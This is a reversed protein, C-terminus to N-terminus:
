QVTLQYSLSHQLTYSNTGTATGTVSLTYTVQSQGFFGTDVGCGTISGLAGLGLLMMVGLLLPRLKKARRRLRRGFPLLLLALVIGTDRGFGPGQRLEGHLPTQITVTFPTVASGPTVVQPSITATAGTPLGGVSLTIPFTFPVLVPTITFDFTASQGPIVTQNISGGPNSPQPVLALSFDEVTQNVTTSTSGAFSPSGGYVATIPDTGVALTSTTATITDPPVSGVYFPVGGVEFTVTGAPSGLGIPVVVATFTVPQGNLSPDINSGLTVTTPAQTGVGVLLVSQPVVLTGGFAVSGSDPGVTVPLSEIFQTCSAGATLTIPLASCTGGAVATFGTAINITSVTISATGTNSLIISQTATPVGVYTSPFTLTPLLGARVRENQKDAISINGSADPAVSKPMNLIAGTALGNDGGYGQVGTGTITAIAGNGVQRIRENDTDAVYVNGASDVSVGAPRALTASAAAAGDGSFGGSFGGGSGALTSIVGSSATVVRIRQNLRDAIYLNGSSDVAVGTPSDLAASTAAAGDGNYFEEGDGAVTSITTGSIKRIRHNNTDAIYVNFSSDVAVASPLALQAATAAGNDGSFGAVGTGAITTITGGSVERIRHNHSDAIYLNGKSDVALGTPTDLQASAAAGGDGSFGEIGTGAVTTITGTKSVERVVHNNADALYLNGSSDYAVGSPYALTASTAAGNDGTYGVVGTGASTSVARGPTVTLIGQARLAPTFMWLCALASAFVARRFVAPFRIQSAQFPTGGVGRDKLSLTDSRFPNLSTKLGFKLYDLRSPPAIKPTTQPMFKDLGGPNSQPTPSAQAVSTQPTVPAPASKATSPLWQMEFSVEDHSVTHFGLREYLRLAPNTHFVRLHIAVDELEALQQLQRLAWTGIGRNRYEPLVALDLTRFANAHRAKPDAIQGADPDALQRANSDAFQREVLLRGVPTGDALLLVMDVAAPHNQTVSLQHARCQMEILPQLQEPSLGLPAFEATKEAAILALLLPADDAAARRWIGQELHAM